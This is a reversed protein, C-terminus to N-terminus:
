VAAGTVSSAPVTRFVERWDDYDLLGSRDLIKQSWEDFSVGLANREAPNEEIARWNKQLRAILQQLEALEIQLESDADPFGWELYLAPERLFSLVMKEPYKSDAVYKARALSSSLEALRIPLPDRLFRERLRTWRDAQDTSQAITQHNM